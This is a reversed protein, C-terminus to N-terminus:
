SSKRRYRRRGYLCAPFRRERGPTPVPMRAIITTAASEITGAHVDPAAGASDGVGTDDGVGFADGVSFPIGIVVSERFPRITKESSVFSM